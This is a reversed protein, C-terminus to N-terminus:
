LSGGPVLLSDITLEQVSNDGAVCNMMRKFALKGLKYGSTEVYTIKPNYLKPIFGNSISIVAIDGPVSMDKEHIAQMAGILILDGMCFVADPPFKSEVAKRTLIRGEETNLPFGYEVIAEPLLRDYTEKFSEYRKRSITLNPHGFLAIIRKKGKKILAEAAIAAAARDALCIKNCNEYDPVRDFFVLPINLENLKLFPQLDNTDTTIAVFLGTVRNRKLLKLSNLEVQADEGSQMIFVSYGATRAEEEVAAIFSDYFFNAVSPVLIGLVKSENTRLQIAYANPEYELASALERVRKKSEESIDPHDKLARSVTSISLNLIESLEKLTSSQRM